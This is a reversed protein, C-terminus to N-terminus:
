AHRLKRLRRLALVGLLAACTTDGGCGQAKPEPATRAVEGRVTVIDAETLAFLDVTSTEEDVDLTVTAPRDDPV